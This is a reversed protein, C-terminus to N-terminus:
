LYNVADYLDKSIRDPKNNKPFDDMKLNGIFITKCGASKGAIIDREDDGICFSDYLNFYYKAAAQFFLGPKPKRCSCESNWGHPCIFIDKISVGFSALEKYLENNISEVQKKTVIGRDIGAQNSVIYIEYGKKQLIKLAEKAKPLFIFEKWKTVYQAIPPKKNIVGDRDLLVIKRDSFYKKISPLRTPNSLGYYKHHTIFGALQKQKILRPIILDEFSFNYDPLNQFIGKDLLFFGIDVGSLNTLKRTRDYIKVLGGKDVLINNRTSQDLNSYITVLAKKGMKKYFNILQDLKLPWYNDGYLLLFKEDLLPLANQIRTGTDTEIPSFSYSISIGLNKGNGFYNEIKEHMYGVLIVVREINNEKLVELIHTLFPQGHIPIMPKPNNLTFARMRLGLGGALIVAQKVSEM